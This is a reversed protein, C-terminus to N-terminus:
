FLDGIMQLVFGFFLFLMGRRRYWFHHIYAESADYPPSEPMIMERMAVSPVSEREKYPEFATTVEEALFLRLVGAMDFLLGSATLM